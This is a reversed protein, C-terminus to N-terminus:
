QTVGEPSFTLTRIKADSPFPPLSKGNYSLDVGSANGLKVVMEKEARFSRITAPPLVGEIMLKGDATVQVWSETKTKLSLRLAKSADSTKTEASKEEPKASAELPKSSLNLNSTDIPKPAEATASTATAIATAPEPQAPTSETAVPQATLTAPTANSTQQIMESEPATAQAKQRDNFFKWSFAGVALVVVVFVALAMLKASRDDQPAEDESRSAAAAYINSVGDKHGNSSPTFLSPQNPDVVPFREPKVASTEAAVFDTVAQEEDIGLYKAYARVFGKNFIGGPLKGFDETELARLFRCSIKTSDAIEELTISRMERERQLREGFSGM